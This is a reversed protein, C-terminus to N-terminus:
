ELESLLRKADDAEGFKDSISLSKKLEAIAQDKIGLKHYVLGLHYRITPNNPSGDAAAKLNPLAEKYNGRKYQVWGLTDLIDPQKPAVQKAKQAYSLAQELNGEQEAYIYAMNNYTSILSLLSLKRIAKDDLAKKYQELAKQYMGRAIYIDGLMSYADGYDPAYSLAKSVEEIAKDPSGKAYQINGLNKYGPAYKPEIKIAQLFEKEAEDIMGKRLYIEGLGNHYVPNQPDIAVISKAESMANDIAGTNLYFLTLEQRVAPNKPQASVAAKYERESDDKKGMSMYLRALNIRSPIFGSNLSIAERFKAEAESQYKPNNAGTMWIEGIANRVEPKDPQAQIAMNAYVTASETDGLNFAGASLGIMSYVHKPDLKLAKRFHENAEQLRKASLYYLGLQYYDDATKPEKAPRSPYMSDTDFQENSRGDRTPIAVAIVPIMILFIIAICLYKTM